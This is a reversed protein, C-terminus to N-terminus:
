NITAQTAKFIDTAKTPTKELEKKAELYYKIIEDRIEPTGAAILLPISGEAYLKHNERLANPDFKFDTYSGNKKDVSVVSCGTALALPVGPIIESIPEDFM